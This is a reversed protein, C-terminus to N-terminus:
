YLTIAHKGFDIKCRTRYFFEDGLLGHITVGYLAEFNAIDCAPHVAFDVNVTKGNIEVPVAVVGSKISDSTIASLNVKRPSEEYHIDKLISESIISIGCGSDVIFNLPIGQVDITVYPIDGRGFNQFEYISGKKKNLFSYFIYVIVAVLALWTIIIIYDM